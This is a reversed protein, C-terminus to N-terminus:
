WTAVFPKYPGEGRLFAALHRAQIQLITRLKHKKGEFTEAEDLRGIIKKSLAQRSDEDIRDGNIKIKGGKTFLAIIPRDVIFSRFEEILDLVLSPKGPRDTHLFGAFPDLGALVIAGWVQSHLIGYGYNLASNVPDTAGRHERGSFGSDSPFIQEALEWYKQAARGEVSLLLDRVEEVRDAQLFRCEQILEELGENGRCIAEYVERNSEKRHRAFYKLTAAQNRIKGEVFLKALDLGRKDSYALLQERRTAVTGVLDPSALRALPKGSSTLFTIAIGREACERILDSSLSIGSGLVLVQEVQFFPLEQVVNGKERIQIRESTRGIFQGFKDITIIM